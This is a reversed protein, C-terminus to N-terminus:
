VKSYVFFDCAPQPDKNKIVQQLFWGNINVNIWTTFKRYRVHLNKGAEVNWAYIIVYKESASFLHHMYQEFVDDELLHYIVDISLCMDAKFVSLHDVFVKSNYIFFSKSLDDKFIAACKEIATISVDFGIYAPFVYQKLQNGDGCGFEIVSKVLNDLVFKNLINAKYAALAGYSGSGSTGNKQYRKEWYIAASNYTSKFRANM